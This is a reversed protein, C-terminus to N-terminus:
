NFNCLAIFCVDCPLRVAFNRFILELGKGGVLNWRRGGGVRWGWVCVCM